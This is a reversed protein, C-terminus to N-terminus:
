GKFYLDTFVTHPSSAWLKSRLNQSTRGKTLSSGHLVDNVAEPESICSSAGDKDIGAM